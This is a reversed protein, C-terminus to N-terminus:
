DMWFHFHFHFHFYSLFFSLQLCQMRHPALSSCHSPTYFLLVLIQLQVIFRSVKSCSLNTWAQPNDQGLFQIFIIISSPIICKLALPYCHWLCYAIPFKHCSHQQLSKAASCGMLCLITQNVEIAVVFLSIIFKSVILNSQLFYQWERFM